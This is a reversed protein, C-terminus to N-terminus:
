VKKVLYTQSNKYEKKQLKLIKKVRPLFYIEIGITILMLYTLPFSILSLITLFAYIISKLVNNYQERRNNQIQYFLFQPYILSFPICFVLYALYFLIYLFIKALTGFIRLFFQNFLRMKNQRRQKKIEEYIIKYNEECSKDLHAPYYCVTCFKMKCQDCEYFQELSVHTKTIGFTLASEQVAKIYNNCKPNICWRTRPNSNLIKLKKITMYKRIYYSDQNLALFIEHDYFYVSCDEQPCKICFVNSNKIQTILYNQACHICFIHTCQMSIRFFQSYFWEECCINCMILQNENVNLGKLKIIKNSENINSSLGLPIKMFTAHDYQHDTSKQFQSPVKIRIQSTIQTNNQNQKLLQKNKKQQLEKETKSAVTSETKFYINLFIQMLSSGPDERSLEFQNFSQQCIQNIKKEDLNMEFAKLKVFELIQDTNKNQLLYYSFEKQKLEKLDASPGNYQQNYQNLHQGKILNYTQPLSPPNRMSKIQDAESKIFISIQPYNVPYKGNLNENSNIDGEVTQRLM